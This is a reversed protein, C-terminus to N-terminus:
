KSEPSDDEHITDAPVWGDNWKALKGHFEVGRTQGFPKTAVLRAVIVPQTVKLLYTGDGANNVKVQVTQDDGQVKNENAKKTLGADLGANVAKDVKLTVEMSDLMVDSVVIALTDTSYAKAIRSDKPLGAIYDLAKDKVLFRVTATGLSLTTTVGSTYSLDGSLKLVKLLNTLTSLSLSSKDDETLNLVGGKGTDAYGNVDEVQKASLTDPNMKLCSFTACEQDEPKPKAGRKKVIFLTMVGFNNTPYSIWEYHKFKKAGLVSKVKKELIAGYDEARAQTSSAVLAFLCLLLISIRATKMDKYEESADGSLTFCLM